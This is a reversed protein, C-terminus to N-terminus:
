ARSLRYWIRRLQPLSEGSVFPVLNAAKTPRAINETDKAMLSQFYSVALHEKWSHHFIKNMNSLFKTQWPFKRNMINQKDVTEM